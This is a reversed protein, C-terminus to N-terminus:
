WKGGHIWVPLHTVNDQEDQLWLLLQNTFTVDKKRMGCSHQDVHEQWKGDHTCVPQKMKHEEDQIWLLLRNTIMIHKRRMCCSDQNVLLVKVNTNINKRVSIRESRQWNKWCTLPKARTMAWTIKTDKKEWFQHREYCWIKRGQM